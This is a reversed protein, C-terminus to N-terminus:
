YVQTVFVRAATGVSKVLPFPNDAHLVLLVSRLNGTTSCAVQRSHPRLM